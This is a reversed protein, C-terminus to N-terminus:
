IEEKFSKPSDERIYPFPIITILPIKDDIKLTRPKEPRPPIKGNDKILPIRAGGAILNIQEYRLLESGLFNKTM